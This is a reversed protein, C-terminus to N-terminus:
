PHLYFTQPPSSRRRLVVPPGASVPRSPGSSGPRSGPRSGANPVMTTAQSSATPPRSMPSGARLATKRSELVWKLRRSREAADAFQAKSAKVREELRKVYEETASDQLGKLAENQLTAREHAPSFTECARKLLSMCLEQLQDCSLDQVAAEENEAHEVSCFARAYEGVDWHGGEHTAKAGNVDPIVMANNSMRKAKATAKNKVDALVAFLRDYNAETPMKPIANPPFIARKFGGLRVMPHLGVEADHIIRTQRSLIEYLALLEDQNRELEKLQKVHYEEFAKSFKESEEKKGALWEKYTEELQELEQKQSEKLKLLTQKQQEAMMSMREEFHIKSRAVQDKGDKLISTIKLIQNDKQKIENAASEKHKRAEDIHAKHQDKSTQELSAKLQQITENLRKNKDQLEVLQAESEKEEQETAKHISELIDEDEALKDHAKAQRNKKSM